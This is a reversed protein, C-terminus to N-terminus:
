TKDVRRRAARLISDRSLEKKPPLSSMVQHVLAGDTVEDRGPVGNPYRKVFAGKAIEQKPSSRKRRPKIPPTTDEGSTEVSEEIGSNRSNDTVEDPLERGPWLQLMDERRFRVKPWTRPDSSREDWFEAPLENLNADIAKLEGAKLATLLADAPNGIVLGAADGYGRLAAWRDLVFEDLNLARAEPRQFAIWELARHLPWRPENFYYVDRRHTEGANYAHRAEITKKIDSQSFRVNIYIIPEFTEPTGPVILTDPPEFTGRALHEASIDVPESQPDQAKQGGVRILGAMIAWRLRRWEFGDRGFATLAAEFDIWEDNTM